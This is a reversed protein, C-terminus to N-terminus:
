AIPQLKLPLQPWLYRRILISMSSYQMRIAALLPWSNCEGETLELRQRRLLRDGALRSQQAQEVVQLSLDLAAAGSRPRMKGIGASSRRKWRAASATTSFKQRGTASQCTAPARTSKWRMFTGLFVMMKRGSPIASSGIASSPPLVGSAAAAVGAMRQGPSAMGWVGAFSASTFLATVVGPPVIRPYAREWFIAARAKPMASTFESPLKDLTIPESQNDSSM